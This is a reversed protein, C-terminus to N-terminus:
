LQYNLLNRIESLSTEKVLVGDKFVTELEGGQEEEKTCQDKLVYEGNVLNKSYKGLNEM